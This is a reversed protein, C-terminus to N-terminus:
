AKGVVAAHFARLHILESLRIHSIRGNPEILPPLSHDNATGKVGVRGGVRGQALSIPRFTPALGVRRIPSNVVSCSSLLTATLRPQFSLSIFLRATIFIFWM